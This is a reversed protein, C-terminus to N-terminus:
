MEGVIFVAAAILSLKKHGGGDDSSGDDGSSNSSGSDGNIAESLVVEQSHSDDKGSWSKKSESLSAM